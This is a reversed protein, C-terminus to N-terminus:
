KKKEINFTKLLKKVFMITVNYQLMRNGGRYVETIDLM